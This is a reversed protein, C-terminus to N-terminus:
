VMSRCHDIVVQQAWQLHRNRQSGDALPGRKAQVDAMSLIALPVIDDKLRRCFRLITSKKVNPNSLDLIHLHEAALTEVFTREPEPMHLRTAVAEVIEKGKAAHGYFTIRRGGDKIERAAPKGADHLLAALKLLPLRNGSNLNDRVRDGAPAFFRDLHNLIHECHKLAALCHDWVDLHHFGNQVCGKMAAIEPFVVELVGQQDMREIVAFSKADCFIRYLATRAQQPSPQTLAEALRRMAAKAEAEIKFDVEKM